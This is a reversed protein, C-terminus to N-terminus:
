GQAATGNPKKATHIAAIGGTLNTWAVSEFGADELMKAFAEQNPFAKISRSLYVFGSRDHTILGGWFPIMHTLYLQYLGNWLRNPPTSFELCVLTGGPKLVRMMESLAREREPMNRIGYAVTLVDCMEDPLDMDQADIVEFTVPVGDSDGDAMHGKAVELMEPVLDTCHIRAPHKTRAVAFTIDGTGGAVDLVVSDSTVPALEVLKRIWGRYAGFSSVANFREYRDAISSFIGKVKRTSLERPAATGHETDISM